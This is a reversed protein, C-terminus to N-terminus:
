LPVGTERNSDKGLSEANDGSGGALYRTHNGKGNGKDKSGKGTETNSYYGYEQQINALDLKPIYTNGGTVSAQALEAAHSSSGAPSGHTSAM